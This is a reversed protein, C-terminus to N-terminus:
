PPLLLSSAAALTLLQATVPLAEPCLIRHGLAWDEEPFRLIVLSTACFHSTRRDTKTRPAAADGTLNVNVLFM